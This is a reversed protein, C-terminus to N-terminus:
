QASRDNDCLRRPFEDDPLASLGKFRDNKIPLGGIDCNLCGRENPIDLSRPDNTRLDFLNLSSGKM